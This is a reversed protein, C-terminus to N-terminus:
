YSARRLVRSSIPALCERKHWLVLRHAGQEVRAHMGPFGAVECPDDRQECVVSGQRHRRRGAPILPPLRDAREERGAHKRNDAVLSPVPEDWGMSIVCRSLM